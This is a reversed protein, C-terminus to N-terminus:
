VQTEANWNVTWSEFNEPINKLIPSDIKTFNVSYNDCIWAM